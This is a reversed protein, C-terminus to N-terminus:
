YQGSLINIYKITQGIFEHITKGDISPKGVASSEVCATEKTVKSCKDEETKTMGFSFNDSLFEFEENSLINSVIEPQKENCVGRNQIEETALPETEFAFVHGDNSADSRSKLQGDYKEKSLEELTKVNQTETENDEKTETASSGRSFSSDKPEKAQLPRGFIKSEANVNSMFNFPLVSSIDKNVPTGSKSDTFLSRAKTEMADSSKMRKSKPAGDKGVSNCNDCCELEERSQSSEKMCTCKDSEASIQQSSSSKKFKNKCVETEVTTNLETDSSSLVRKSKTSASVNSSSNQVCPRKPSSCSEKKYLDVTEQLNNETCSRKIENSSMSQEECPRTKQVTNLDKQVYEFIFKQRPNWNSILVFPNDTPESELLEQACSFLRGVGDQVDGNTQSPTEEPSSESNKIEEEVIEYIKQLTDKIGDFVTIAVKLLLLIMKLVHMKSPFMKKFGTFLFFFSGILTFYLFSSVIDDLHCFNSFAMRRWLFEERLFVSSDM